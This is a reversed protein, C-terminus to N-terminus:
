NNSRIQKELEEARRIAKPDDAVFKIKSIVKLADEKAKLRETLLIAYNLLVTINRTNGRGIEEYIDRAKEGQGQVALAVALNNAVGVAEESGERVRSKVAKFGASLPALARSYDRYELYISALNTAGIVYDSKMELSRKFESIAARLDGETLNVVGLNNHLAPEKPHSNLARLFIMRALGTHNRRYYHIGLMNLAILHNPNKGLIRSSAAIIQPELDEKFAKRLDRIDDNSVELGSETSASEFSGSEEEVVPDTDNMDDFQMAKVELGLISFSYLLFLLVIRLGM